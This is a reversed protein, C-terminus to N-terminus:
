ATTTEIEKTTKLTSSMENGFRDKCKIYYTTDPRWDARHTFSYPTNDTMDSGQGYSFQKVSYQCSTLENTAMFLTDADKYARVVAPAQTDRLVNFFKEDSAINIDNSDYCTVYLRHQGYSQIKNMTTSHGTFGTSDFVTMNMYLQKVDISYACTAAKGTSVDIEPQPEITTDAPSTIDVKFPDSVKFRIIGPIEAVNGSSDRCLVVYAYIESNNLASNGTLNVVHQANFQGTGPPMMTWNTGNYDLGTLSLESELTQENAGAGVLTSAVKQIEELNGVFSDIGEAVPWRKYKCESPEDTNIILSVERKGNLGGEIPFDPLPYKYTIVPGQTDPKPAKQLDIEIIPSFSQKRCSDQCLAFYSFNQMTPNSIDLSAGHVEFTQDATLPKMNDWGATKNLTYRCESALNTKLETDFSVDGYTINSGIFRQSSLTGNNIERISLATGATNACNKVKEPDPYCKQAYTDYVCASDASLAQCRAPTCPFADDQCRECNQYGTPVSMDRPDAPICANNSLVNSQMYTQLSCTMIPVLVSSDCVNNDLFGSAAAASGMFMYCVGRSIWFQASTIKFVKAYKGLVTKLLWGKLLGLGLAKFHSLLYGGFGGQAKWWNTLADVYGESNAKTSQRVDFSYLGGYYQANQVNQKTITSLTQSAQSVRSPAPVAADAFGTIPFIAMGSPQPSSVTVTPAKPNEIQKIQASLKTAIDNLIAPNQSLDGPSVANLWDYGAMGCATQSELVNRIAVLASKAEGLSNFTYHPVGKEDVSAPKPLKSLDYTITKSGGLLKNSNEDKIEPCNTKVLIKDTKKDKGVTAKGEELLPKNNGTVGNYLIDVTVDTKGTPIIWLFRDPATKRSEKDIDKILNTYDSKGVEAPQAVPTPAPAPTAAEPQTQELPVAAPTETPAPQPTTQVCIKKIEETDTTLAWHRILNKPNTPDPMRIPNYVVLFPNNICVSPTRPDPICERQGNQTILGVRFENADSSYQYDTMVLYRLNERLQVTIIQDGGVGLDAAFKDLETPALPKVRSVNLSMVQIAYRCPEPLASSTSSATAYGTISAIVHGAGFKDTLTSTSPSQPQVNPTVEIKQQNLDIPPAESNSNILTSTATAAQYADFYTKIQVAVTPNTGQGSLTAADKAYDYTVKKNDSFTAIYTNGVIEVRDPSFDYGAYDIKGISTITHGASGVAVTQAAKAAATQEVSTQYNSADQAAKVADESAKVEIQKKTIAENYKDLQAAMDAAGAGNRNAALQQKLQDAQKQLATLETNKTQLTQQYNLIRDGWVSRLNQGPAFFQVIFDYGAAWNLGPQDLLSNTRADRVALSLATQKNGGATALDSYHAALEPDAALANKAALSLDADSAGQSGSTAWNTWISPSALVAGIWKGISSIIPIDGKKDELITAYEQKVSDSTALRNKISDEEQKKAFDSIYPGITKQLGTVLAQQSLTEIICISVGALPHMQNQSLKCYGRSTCQVSDGCKNWPSSAETTSCENCIDQKTPSFKPVCDNNPATVCSGQGMSNCESADCLGPAVVWYDWWKPNILDAGLFNLTQSLIGQLNKGTWKASGCKSCEKYNNAVDNTIGNAYNCVKDRNDDVGFTMLNGLECVAKYHQEGPGQFKICAQQGQDLTFSFPAARKVSGFPGEVEVEGRKFYAMDFNLNTFKIELPCTKAVCHPAGNVTDVIEEIGCSEVINEPGNCSDFNYVGYGQNGNYAGTTYNSICSACKQSSFEGSQRDCDEKTMFKCQAQSRLTCYGTTKAPIRAKCASYTIDDTTVTLNTGTAVPSRSCKNKFFVWQADVVQNGNSFICCTPTCSPIELLQQDYWLGFNDECQQKFAQADCDGNQQVCTGINCAGQPVDSCKGGYYGASCDSQKVDDKCYEGSLTKMCCGTTAASVSPIILNLFKILMLSLSSQGPVNQVGNALDNDVRLLYATAVTLSVMLYISFIAIAKLEKENRKRRMSSEKRTRM